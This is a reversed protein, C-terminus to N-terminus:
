YQYLHTSIMSMSWESGNLNLINGKDDLIKINLKNIDVPGNYKRKFRNKDSTFMSEGWVLSKNEFPIIAFVNNILNADLKSNKNNFTSMYNNIQLASYLQKKTLKRGNLECYENFSADTLCSLNYDVNDHKYYTTPKIQLKDHSIQVLGKNTQNKNMDDIVIVFYKTYPIYCLSEATITSTTPTLVYEICIKSNDIGRFGLIWGLNNNIKSQITASEQTINDNFAHEGDLYDYFIIIYKKSTLSSTISVKNSISNLNFSIDNYGNEVLANNIATIINTNNYNGSNIEIKNLSGDVESGSPDIIIDQIYFYNNGNNTDINYFTFPISINTLELSVVNDLTDNLYILMDSSTKSDYSNNSFWLNERYMSDINIIRYTENFYSQNLKRPDKIINNIGVMQTNYNNGEIKFLEDALMKSSGEIFSNIKDKNKYDYKRLLVIYLKKKAEEVDLLTYQNLFINSGHADNYMKKIDTCTYNLVDLEQTMKEM